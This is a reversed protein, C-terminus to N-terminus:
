RSSRRPQPGTSPQQPHPPHSRSTTATRLVRLLRDTDGDKELYPAAGAGLAATRAAGNISFAVVPLQRVLRNILVLGDTVTPLAM